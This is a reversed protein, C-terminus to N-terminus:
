LINDFVAEVGTTAYDRGLNSFYIQTTEIVINNSIILFNNCTSDQDPLM